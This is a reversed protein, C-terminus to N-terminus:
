NLYMESSHLLVCMVIEPKSVLNKSGEGGEESAAQVAQMDMSQVLAM